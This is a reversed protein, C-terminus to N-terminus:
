EWNLEKLVYELGKITMLEYKKGDIKLHPGNSCNNICLHTHITIFGDNSTGNIPCNYRECLYKLLDLAKRKNCVKGMCVEPQVSGVYACKVWKVFYYDMIGYVPGLRFYLFSRCYDSIIKRINRLKEMM